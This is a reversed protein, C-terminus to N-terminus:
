RAPDPIVPKVENSAICDPVVKCHGAFVFPLVVALLAQNAETKKLGIHNHHNVGFARFLRVYYRQSLCFFM